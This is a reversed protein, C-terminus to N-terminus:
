EDARRVAARQRYVEAASTGESAKQMHKERMNAGVRVGFLTLARHQLVCITALMGGLSVHHMRRLQEETDLLAQLYTDDSM